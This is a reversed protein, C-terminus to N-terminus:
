PLQGIHGGGGGECGGVGTRALDALGRRQGVHAEGDAVSVVGQQGAALRVQDGYGLCQVPQVTGAEVALGRPQELWPAREGDEGIVKTYQAQGARITM